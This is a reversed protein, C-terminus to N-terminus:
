QPCQYDLISYKYEPRDQWPSDKCVHLIISVSEGDFYQPNPYVQDYGFPMSTEDISRQEQPSYIVPVAGLCFRWEVSLGRDKMNKAKQGDELVRPMPDFILGEQPIEVEPPGYLGDWHRVIGTLGFGVSDTWYTDRAETVGYLPDKQAGLPSVMMLGIGIATRKM